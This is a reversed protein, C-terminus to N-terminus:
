YRLPFRSILFYLEALNFVGAAVVVWWWRSGKFAAITALLVGTPLAGFV